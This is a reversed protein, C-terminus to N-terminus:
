KHQKKIPEKDLKLGSKVNTLNISSVIKKIQKSKDNKTDVVKM